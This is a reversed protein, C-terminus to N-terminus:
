PLAGGGGGGVWGGPISRIQAGSLPHPHPHPTTFQSMDCFFLPGYHAM